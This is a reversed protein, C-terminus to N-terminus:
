NDLEAHSGGKNIKNFWRRKRLPRATSVDVVETAAEVAENVREWRRDIEASVRRFKAHRKRDAAWEKLHCKKRKTSM